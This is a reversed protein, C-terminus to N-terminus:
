GRLLISVSFQAAVKDAVGDPMPYLNAEPVLMVQLAFVGRRLAYLNCGSLIFACATAIRVTLVAHRAPCSM